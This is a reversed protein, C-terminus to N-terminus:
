LGKGKKEDLRGLLNYPRVEWTEYPVFNKAKMADLTRSRMHPRTIYEHINHETLQVFKAEKIEEPQMIIEGSVYEAKFVVSKSIKPLVVTEGPGIISSTTKLFFEAMLEDNTKTVRDASSIREIMEKQHARYNAAAAWLSGPNPIPAHLRVSALALAGSGQAADRAIQMAAPNNVLADVIELM